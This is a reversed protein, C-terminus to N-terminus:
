PIWVSIVPLVTFILQRTVFGVFPMHVWRLRLDPQADAWDSWLRGQASLRYSLVWLKRWASLLSESWVPRIGLSSRLRRQACMGNQHNQQSAAWIIELILPSFIEFLICVHKISTFIHMYVFCYSFICGVLCRYIGNQQIRMFIPEEKYVIM